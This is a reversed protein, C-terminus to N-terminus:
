GGNAFSTELAAGPQRDVVTVDHGAQHLFWASTIGTVGAGLVTVKMIFNGLFFHQKGLM